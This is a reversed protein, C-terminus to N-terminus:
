GGGRTNKKQKDVSSSCPPRHVDCLFATIGCHATPHRIRRIGPIRCIWGSDWLVWIWRHAIIQPVLNKTKFIDFLKSVFRGQCFDNPKKDLCTQIWIIQCRWFLFNPVVFWQEISVKHVTPNLISRHSEPSKTIEVDWLGCHSEHIRKSTWLATSATLVQRAMLLLYSIPLKGRHTKRGTCYVGIYCRRTV